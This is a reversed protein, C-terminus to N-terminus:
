NVIAKTVAAINQPVLLNEMMKTKSQKKCLEHCPWTELTGHLTSRITVVAYALPESSMFVANLKAVLLEDAKFM